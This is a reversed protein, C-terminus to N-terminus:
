ASSNWVALVGLERLGLIPLTMLKSAKWYSENVREVIDKPVVFHTAWIENSQHSKSLILAKM